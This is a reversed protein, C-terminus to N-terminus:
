TLQIALLLDVISFLLITCIFVLFPPNLCYEANSWKFFLGKTLNSFLVHFSVIWKLLFYSLMVSVPHYFLDEVIWWWCSLRVFGDNGHYYGFLLIFLGALSSGLGLLLFVLISSFFLFHFFWVTPLYLLNIFLGLFCLIWKFNAEVLAITSWNM